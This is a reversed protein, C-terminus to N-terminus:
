FDLRERAELKLLFEEFYAANVVFVMSGEGLPRFNEDFEAEYNTRLHKQYRVWPVYETVLGEDDVDGSNLNTREPDIKGVCLQATTVIVPYYWRSYGSGSYQKSFADFETRALAETAAVVEAASRELLNQHRSGDQGRIACYMSLFSDPDRQCTNWGSNTRNRSVWGRFVSRQKTEKGSTNLFLWTSDRVRKCEVVLVDRLQKEFVLDIFGSEHTESDSWPYEEYRLNWGIQKKSDVLHRLAIQLPFGSSNAQAREAM